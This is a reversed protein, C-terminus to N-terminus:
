NEELVKHVFEMWYGRDSCYSRDIRSQDLWDGHMAQRTLHPRSKIVAILYNELLNFRDM